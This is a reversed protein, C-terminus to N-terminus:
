IPSLFFYYVYKKSCEKKFKKKILRLWCKQKDNPKANIRMCM